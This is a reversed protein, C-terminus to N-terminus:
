SVRFLRQQSHAPFIIKFHGQHCNLKISVPSLLEKPATWLGSKLLHRFSIAIAIPSPHHFGGYVRVKSRYSIPSDSTCCCCRRCDCLLHSVEFPKGQCCTTTFNIVKNHMGPIPSSIGSGSYSCSCASPSDAAATIFKFFSM